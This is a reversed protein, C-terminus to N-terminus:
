SLLLLLTRVISLIVRVGLKIESDSLDGNDPHHEKEVIIADLIRNVNNYLPTYVTSTNPRRKRTIWKATCLRELSRRIHRISLNCKYAITQESPYCEGTKANTHQVIVFAVKFDVPKLDRDFAICELWNMKASTWTKNGLSDALRIGTV